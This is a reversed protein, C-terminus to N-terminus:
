KSRVLGSGSDDDHQSARRQGLSKQADQVRALHRELTKFDDTAEFANRGKAMAGSLASKAAFLSQTSGERLYADTVHVLASVVTKWLDADTHWAGMQAGKDFLSPTKNERM